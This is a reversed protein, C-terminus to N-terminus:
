PLFSFVHYFSLFSFSWGVFNLDCVPSCLCTTLHYLLQPGHKFILVHLWMRCVASISSGDISWGQLVCKQKTKTMKALWWSALNRRNVYFALRCLFLCNCSIAIADSAIIRIDCCMHFTVWGCLDSNWIPFSCLCVLM